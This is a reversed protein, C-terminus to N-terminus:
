GGVKKSEIFQYIKNVQSDRGAIEEIFKINQSYEQDNKKYKDIYGAFENLKVLLGTSKLLQVSEFDDQPGVNIIPKGLAILEFIKGPIVGKADSEGSELFLNFDSAKLVGFMENRPLPDHFFCYSNANNIDVLEKLNALYYGFFHIHIKDELNHKKIIQFLATPDRRNKYINGAYVINIKNKDLFLDEKKIINDYEEPVFGNRVLLVDKNHFNRMQNSLDESVTTILDAKSLFKKEFFTDIKKSFFNYEVLHNLTWLDRFDAIWLTEKNQCKIYWGLWTVCAPLSSTLLVDYKVNSNKIYEISNYAWVTRYDFLQGTFKVLISKIKKLFDRRNNMISNTDVVDNKKDNSKNKFNSPIEIFNAKDKLKNYKEFDKIPGDVARKESTLVDVHYGKACFFDIFHNIRQSSILDLPAVDYAVILIKM